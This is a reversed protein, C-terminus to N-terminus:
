PSIPLFNLHVPEDGDSTCSQQQHSARRRFLAGADAGGRTRDDAASCRAINAASRNTSGDAAYGARQDAIDRSLRAAAVVAVAVPVAVDISASAKGRHRLTHQYRTFGFLSLRRLITAAPAISFITCSPLHDEHQM